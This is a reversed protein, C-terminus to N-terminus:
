IIPNITTKFNLKKFTSNFLQNYDHYGSLTLCIRIYIYLYTNKHMNIHTYKYMCKHSDKHAYIHIYTDTHARMGRLKM